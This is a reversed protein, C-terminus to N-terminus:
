KTYTYSFARLIAYVGVRVYMCARVYVYASECARLREWVVIVDVLGCLSKNM